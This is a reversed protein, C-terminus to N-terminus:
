GSRPGATEPTARGPSELPDLWRLLAPLGVLTLLASAPLAMGVVIGLRATAPVTSFALAGFGISVALADALIAPAVARGAAELRASLSPQDAERLRELYHIAYDIGIGLSVACFTSTAVGIPMGLWGMAGLMWLVAIGTPAVALLATRGSGLVLAVCALAGILALVLSGLQTKVIAPIMAQSLALDGAFAIEGGLPELYEASAERAQQMLLLRVLAQIGSLYIHGEAVRYKDDLSVSERGM